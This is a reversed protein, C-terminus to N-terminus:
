SSPREEGRWEEDTRSGDDVGTATTDDAAGISPAEAVSTAESEAADAESGRSRLGRRLLYLGLAVLGLVPLMMWPSFGGEGDDTARRDTSGDTTARRDVDKDATARRDVNGDTTARRDPPDPRADPDWEEALAERVATRVPERILRTVLTQGADLVEESRPTHM